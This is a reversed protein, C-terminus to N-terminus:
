QRGVICGAELFKETDVVGNSSQMMSEANDGFIKFVSECRIVPKDTTPTSPKSSM